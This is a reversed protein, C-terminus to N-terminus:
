DMLMLLLWCFGFVIWNRLVPSFGSPDSLALDPRRVVVAAQCAASTNLCSIVLMCYCHGSTTDSEVLCSIISCCDTGQSSRMSSAFSLFCALYWSSTSSHLPCPHHVKSTPQVRNTPHDTEQANGSYCLPLGHWRYSFVYLFGCHLLASAHRFAAPLLALAQGAGTLEGSHARIQQFAQFMRHVWTLDSIIHGPM